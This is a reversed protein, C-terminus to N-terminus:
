KSVPLKIIFATGKGYESKVSLQGNHRRVITDYTISLGIGIGQEDSKTTFFPDFVKKMNEKTIGIGNDEIKSYVFKEDSYTNIKIIGKEVGHKISIAYVSNIIINLLAQTIQSGIAKILPIEGLEKKIEYHKLENQVILLVTEIGDNIDYMEYKEGTEFVAFSSLGKVVNRIRKLGDSCERFINHVENLAFDINNRKEIDEITKLHKETSEYRGSKIQEKFLKYTRILENFSGCYKSLTDFNSDVFSLPNNIEHAIRASLYGINAYKEQLIAGFRYINNEIRFIANRLSSLRDKPICDSIGARILDLLKDDPLNEYLVIIHFRYHYILDKLKDSIDFATFGSYQYESIVIDWQRSKIIELYDDLSAAQKQVIALSWELLKEKIIEANASSSSIHLIKPQIKM